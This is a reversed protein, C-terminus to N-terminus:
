NQPPTEFVRLSPNGAPGAPWGAETRIVKIYFTSKSAYQLMILFYLILFPKM